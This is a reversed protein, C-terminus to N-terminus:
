EGDIDEQHAVGVTNSAASSSAAAPDPSILKLEHNTVSHAIATPATYLAIQLQQDWLKAEQQQIRNHFQNSQYQLEWHQQRLQLMLVAILLCSLLCLLLKLM